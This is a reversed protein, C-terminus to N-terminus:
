REDREKDDYTLSTLNRLVVLHYVRGCISVRLFGWFSELESLRVEIGRIRQSYVAVRPLHVKVRSDNQGLERDNRTGATYRVGANKHNKETKSKRLILLNRLILGGPTRSWGQYDAFGPLGECTAQFGSIGCGRKHVAVPVDARPRGITENWRSLGEM